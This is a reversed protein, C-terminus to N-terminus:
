TQLKGQMWWAWHYFESNHNSAHREIEESESRSLSIAVAIPQGTIAEIAELYAVSYQYQNDALYSELKSYDPGEWGYYRRPTLFQSRLLRLAERIRFHGVLKAGWVSDQLGLATETMSQLSPLHRALIDLERETFVDPIPQDFGIWDSSYVREATKTFTAAVAAPDDGRDAPRISACGAMGLLLCILISRTQTKVRM